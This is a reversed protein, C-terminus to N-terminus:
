ILLIALAAGACLGLTQYGRIRDERQNRLHELCHACREKVASIEQIQGDLDFRGLSIGVERLMLETQEPIDQRRKLVVELCCKADPSIQRDLEAALEQFFGGVCDGSMESIRRFVEPLPTLRCELECQMYSLAAILRSMAQEERRYNLAMAFGFGGCGVIVLIAGLWKLEVFCDAGKEM